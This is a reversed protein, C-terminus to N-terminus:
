YTAVDARLSYTLPSTHQQMATTTPSTVTNFGPSGIESPSTCSWEADTSCTAPSTVVAVDITEARPPIQNSTSSFHVVSQSRRQSHPPPEERQRDVTSRAIDVSGQTSTGVNSNLNVTVGTVRRYEEITEELHRVKQRLTEYSQGEGALSALGRSAGAGNQFILEGDPDKHLRVMKPIFTLVLIITATLFLGVGFIVAFSNIYTRLSFSAILCAVLIISTIYVITAIYKADNLGKVKVRRIQFAFYLACIQLLGKFGFILGISILRIKSTSCEYIEFNIIQELVGATASPRESNSTTNAMFGIFHGELVTYLILIILDIVVLVMVFIALHWDQALQTKKHPQSNHFIYYVRWLKALITGFALSYGLALLWPTVTCVAAVAKSGTVPAAYFYIDIYILAAGAGIIYNLNPSTLRILKKERFVFNFILCIIDLLLGGTALVVCIVVLSTHVTVIKTEPLGDIPFGPPEPWVTLDDETDLYALDGANDLYAIDVLKMFPSNETTMRYQLVRVRDVERIGNSDFGVRGSIGTFDTNNLHRNMAKVLRDNSYDFTSISTGLSTNRELDTITNNIAYALTWTADYCQQAYQFEGFYFDPVSTKNNYRGSYSEGTTGTDIVDSRRSEDQFQYHIIALSRHLVEAREEPTCLHFVDESAPPIWWDAEYWGFTLFVYKPYMMDRLYAQCILQRAHIAYMALIFVRADADFPSEGLGGISERSNFMRETYSIGEETLNAILRNTTVTFADENQVVIGVHRWGFTRITQFFGPVIDAEVPLMQYYFPFRERNIQETSASVCSIQSINYFHSVEATPGTALSCGSGILAIKTPSYLLQKFLGQLAESRDCQSDTLTYHLTYGPLMSDNSNIDDLAVQVGPIAGSSVLDGGFSMMLGFYLHTTNIDSGSRAPYLQLYEDNQFQGLKILIGLFLLAAVNM